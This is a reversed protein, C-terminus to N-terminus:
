CEATIRKEIGEEQQTEVTSCTVIILEIQSHIIM